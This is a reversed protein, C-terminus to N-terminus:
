KLAARVGIFFGGESYNNSQNNAQRGTDGAVGLDVFFPTPGIGYVVGVRYKIERSALTPGAPATGPPFGATFTGSEAPYYMVSGYLSFGHDFHPLADIGLGPGGMSGLPTSHILYGVALFTRPMFPIQEGLRFDLDTVGYATTTGAITSQWNRYDLGVNQVFPGIAFSYNGHAGWANSTATVIRGLGQDSSPGPIYDFGIDAKTSSGSSAPATQGLAYGTAGLWAAFAFIGLRIVVRMTM